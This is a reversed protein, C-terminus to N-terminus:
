KRPLAMWGDVFRTEELEFIILLRALVLKASNQFVCFNWIM